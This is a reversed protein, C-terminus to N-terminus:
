GQIVKTESILQGFNFNIKENPKVECITNNIAFWLSIDSNNKIYQNTIEAKSMAKLYDIIEITTMPLIDNQKSIVEFVDEIVDWKNEIDLDYSHGVIQFM